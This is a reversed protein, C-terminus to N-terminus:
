QYKHYLSAKQKSKAVDDLGLHSPLLGGMEVFAGSLIQKVLTPPVSPIAVGAPKNYLPNIPNTSPANPTHEPNEQILGM